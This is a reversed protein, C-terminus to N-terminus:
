SKPKKSKPRKTDADDVPDQHHHHPPPSLSKVRRDVKRPATDALSVADAIGATTASFPPLAHQNRGVSTDIPPLIPKASRPSPTAPHHAGSSVSSPAPPPPPLTRAARKSSGRIIKAKLAEMVQDHTMKKDNNDRNDRNINNNNNNNANNTKQYPQAPPCLPHASHPAQNYAQSPQHPQQYLHLHHQPPYEPLPSTIRAIVQQQFPHYYVNRMAQLDM